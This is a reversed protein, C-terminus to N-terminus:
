ALIVSEEELIASLRKSLSVTMTTNSAVQLTGAASLFVNSVPLSHRAAACVSKTAEYLHRYTNLDEFVGPRIHNYLRAVHYVDVSGECLVQQRVTVMAALLAAEPGGFEDMVVTMGSGGGSMLGEVTELLSWWAKDEGAPLKVPVIQCELESVIALKDPLNLALQCRITRHEWPVTPSSPPLIEGTEADSLLQTVSFDDSRLPADTPPIFSTVDTADGNVVHFVTKIKYDWIMQWFATVTAEVPRQTIIFERAKYYSPLFSANVYDSGLIAPRPTIGVRHSHVDTPMYKESRNKGKNFGQMAYEFSNSFNYHSSGPTTTRAAVVLQHQLKLGEMDAKMLTEMYEEFTAAYVETHGSQIYELLADYILAYQSENQCLGMRQKRANLLYTFIDVHGTRDMELMLSHLAIYCGSRGVGASCHVIPPGFNDDEFARSSKIIFRLLPVTIDPRGHDPWDSYMYQTVQRTEGIEGEEGPKKYTLSFTRVTYFATVIENVLAVTFPGYTMPHDTSTPWYLESKKRGNEELNTLMILVRVNYDWVMCWFDALTNSMPAQTLIYADPSHIGDVFSANIYDIPVPGKVLNGSSFCGGCTTSDTEEAETDLKGNTLPQTENEKEVGVTAVTCQTKLKVRSHDYPLVNIYRNRPRNEPKLAEKMSPVFADNGTSNAAQSLVSALSEYERSLGIQGDAYLRKIRVHLETGPIRNNPNIETKSIRFPSLAVGKGCHGNAHGNGNMGLQLYSYGPLFFRKRFACYLGCVVLMIGMMLLVGVILGVETVSLDFASSDTVPAVSAAATDMDPTSDMQFTAPSSPTSTLLTQPYVISRRVAAIRITYSGTRTLNGLVAEAICRHNDDSDGEDVDAARASESYQRYPQFPCDNRDHPHNFIFYNKTPETPSASPSADVPHATSPGRRTKIENGKSARVPIQIMAEQKDANHRYHVQFHTLTLATRYSSTGRGTQSPRQNLAQLPPMEWQVLLANDAVRVISNIDPVEPREVDTWVTLGKSTLAGTGTSTYAGVQIYYVSYPLLGTIRHGIRRLHDSTLFKENELAAHSSNRPRDPLRVVATDTYGAPHTYHLKYGLVIGSPNLPPLWSLQISTDTVEDALLDYPASPIGEATRIVETHAASYGDDNYAQISIYYRQYPQLRRIEYTHIQPNDILIEHVQGPNSGAPTLDGDPAETSASWTAPTAQRYTLRYGKVSPSGSDEYDAPPSLWQLRISTSSANQAMILVPTGPPQPENKTWYVPSMRSPRSHGKSNVAIIQFTYPTVPKLGMVMFNTANDPMRIRRAPPPEGQEWHGDDGPGSPGSRMRARAGNEGNQHVLILYYLIPVDHRTTAAAAASGTSSSWHLGISRASITDVQPIEPADPLALHKARRHRRPARAATNSSLHKRNNQELAPSSSTGDPCLATIDVQHRCHCPPASTLTLFTITTVVLLHM